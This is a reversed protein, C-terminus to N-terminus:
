SRSKLSNEFQVNVDIDDRRLEAATAAVAVTGDPFKYDGPDDFGSLNERVKVLTFMGGMDIIGFQGKGGLMPISNKPVPMNMGTMDDMGGTGMTMYGPLQSGVAQDIASSNVGILNPINHGMQNMTHHTMHCHIPWDGPNDALFEVARTSGVPVLVTNAPFRASEQVQGGDTETMIM